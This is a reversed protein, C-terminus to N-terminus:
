TRSAIRLFESELAEATIDYKKLMFERQGVSSHSFNRIGVGGVLHSQGYEVASELVISFLGGSIRHEELTICPKDLDLRLNSYDFTSLNYVSHISVSFGKASLSNRAEFAVSLLPGSVLILGDDGNEFIESGDLGQLAPREVKELSGLRLYGPNNGQSLYSTVMSVQPSTGPNLIEINELTRLASIDEILYHSYGATGYSFGAGLAVVVVGNSMYSVDNRVQEMCRFTPFNGISYVFPRFGKYALGSAISMISQEAIGLNFFRDPFEKEFKEVVGYGLDATILLIRPDKKAEAVLTEIFINRM